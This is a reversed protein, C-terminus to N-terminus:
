NCVNIEVIERNNQRTPFFVRYYYRGDVKIRETDMAMMVHDEKKGRILSFIYKLCNLVDNPIYDGILYDIQISPPLTNQTYLYDNHRYFPNNGPVKSSDMFDPLGDYIKLDSGYFWQMCHLNFSSYLKPCTYEEFPLTQYDEFLFAEEPDKASQLAQAYNTINKSVKIQPNIVIAELAIFICAAFVTFANYYRCGEFYWYSAVLRSLIIWTLLEIGIVARYNIVGVLLFFLSSIAFSFIECRNKKCFIIIKNRDKTLGLCLAIIFLWWFRGYSLLGLSVRNGDTNLAQEARHFNGPGLVLLAGGALCLVIPIIRSRPIKRYGQLLYFLLGGCLPIAFSENSWGAVFGLMSATITQIISKSKRRLFVVFLLCMTPSWLYNFTYAIGSYACSVNKTVIMFVLLSLIGNRFGERQSFSVNGLCFLFVGFLITALVNCWEKGWIGCFCQTLFHVIYRGNWTFYHAWQSAFVDQITQIQWERDPYFNQKTFICSYVFDDMCMPVIHNILGFLVIIIVVFIAYVNKM